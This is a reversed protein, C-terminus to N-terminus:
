IQTAVDNEALPGVKLGIMRGSSLRLSSKPAPNASQTPPKLPLAVLM